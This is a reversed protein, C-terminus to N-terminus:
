MVLISNYAYLGEPGIELNVNETSDLLDKIDIKYEEVSSVSGSEKSKQGWSYIIGDSDIAASLNEKATVYIIKKNKAADSIVPMWSSEKADKCGLQNYENLGWTYVKHDVSLAMFHNKGSAIQVIKEEFTDIKQPKISDKPNINKASPIGICPGCKGWTIVTGNASSIIVQLYPM